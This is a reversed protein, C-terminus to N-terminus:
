CFILRKKDVKPGIWRESFFPHHRFVVWIIDPYAHLIWFKTKILYKNKYMDPMFCDCLLWHEDMDLHSGSTGIHVDSCEHISISLYAYYSYAYVYRVYLWHMKAYSQNPILTLTLDLHLKCHKPNLTKCETSHLICFYQWCLKSHLMCLAHWKYVKTPSTIQLKKYYFKLTSHKRDEWIRQTTKKKEIRKAELAARWCHMM